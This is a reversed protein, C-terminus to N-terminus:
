KTEEQRKMMRRNKKCLKKIKKEKEEKKKHTEKVKFEKHTGELKGRKRTSTNPESCDHTCGEVAEPTHLVGNSDM